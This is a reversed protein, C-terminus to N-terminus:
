EYLGLEFRCSVTAVGSVKWEWNAVERVGELGEEVGIVVVAVVVVLGEKVVEVVVEVPAVKVEFYEWDFSLSPPSDLCKRAEM